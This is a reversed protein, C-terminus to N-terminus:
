PDWRMFWIHPGGGPPDGEDVVRYGFHEYLVVNTATGTELISGQGVADARALGHRILASGIGHGRWASAM